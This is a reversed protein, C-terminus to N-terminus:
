RAEGERPARRLRGEVAPGLGSAAMTAASLWRFGQSERTEIHAVLAFRERLLVQDGSKNPKIPAVDFTLPAQASVTAPAVVVCAILAWKNMDDVKFSRETEFLQTGRACLRGTAVARM